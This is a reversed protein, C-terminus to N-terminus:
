PLPRKYSTPRQKPQHISLINKVSDNDQEKPTYNGDNMLKELCFKREDINLNFQRNILRKITTENM